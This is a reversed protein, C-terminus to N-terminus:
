LATAIARLQIIVEKGKEGGQLDGTVVKLGEEVKKNM